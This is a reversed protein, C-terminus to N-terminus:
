PAVLTPVGPPGVPLSGLNGAERASFGTASFRREDCSNAPDHLTHASAIRLRGHRLQPPRYIGPIRTGFEGNAGLELVEWGIPVRFASCLYVWFTWLAWILFVMEWIIGQHSGQKIKTLHVTLQKMQNQKGASKPRLPALNGTFKTTLLSPPREPIPFIESCDAARGPRLARSPGVGGM